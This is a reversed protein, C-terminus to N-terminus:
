DPKSTPTSKTESKGGSGGEAAASGAGSASSEKAAPASSAAEAAPKAGKDEGGSSGSKAPEGSSKKAYDTAYWGSGKLQFAPASLLKRLPGGCHPCIALPPDSMRQLVETRRGCSECQYEYLAM